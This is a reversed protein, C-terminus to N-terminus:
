AMDAGKKNAASQRGRWGLVGLASIMLWAAPPIPVVSAGASQDKKMNIYDVLVEKRDFGGYGGLLYKGRIDLGHENEWDSFYDELKGKDIGPKSLAFSKIRSSWRERDENDLEGFLSHIGRLKKYSEKGRWRSELTEKFDFSHKAHAGAAKDRMSYVNTANVPAAILASIALAIALNIANPFTKM